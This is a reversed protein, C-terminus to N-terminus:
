RQGVPWVEEYRSSILTHGRKAFRPTLTTRVLLLAIRVLWNGLNADQRMYGEHEHQVRRALYDENLMRGGTCM